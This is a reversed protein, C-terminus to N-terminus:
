RVPRARGCTASTLLAMRACRPPPKSLVASMARALLSIKSPRLASPTAMMLASSACCAIKAAAAPLWRWSRKPKDAAALTLARSMTALAVPLQKM